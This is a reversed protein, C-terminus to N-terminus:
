NAKFASYWFNLRRSRALDTRLDGCNLRSVTEAMWASLVKLGGSGTGIRKPFDELVRDDAKVGVLIGAAFHGLPEGPHRDQM